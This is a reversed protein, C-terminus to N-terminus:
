RNLEAPKLARTATRSRRRSGGGTPWPIEVGRDRRGRSREKVTVELGGAVPIQRGFLGSLRPRTYEMVDRM